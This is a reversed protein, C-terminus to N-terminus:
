IERTPKDIVIWSEDRATGSCEFFDSDYSNSKVLVKLGKSYQFLPLDYISDSVVILPQPLDLTQMALVKGNRVPVPSKVITSYADSTQELDIGIVRDPRIGLPRCVEEVSWRNSGSIVWIDFEFRQCEALLERVEMIYRIGLPVTYNGLSRELLPSDFEIRLTDAAMELLEVPTFGALLRVIDGCAKETKGQALQDFYSSLLMNAFSTFRPDNTTQQSPFRVLSDYVTHLEDRKQHDLLVDAPSERFLFHEIQFYLMAEGVDGTIITGDCDFVAIPSEERTSLRLGELREEITQRDTM